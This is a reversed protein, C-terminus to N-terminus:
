AGPDLPDMWLELGPLTVETPGSGKPLTVETTLVEHVPAELRLVCPGPPLDTLTFGGAKFSARAVKQGGKLVTVSFEEMPLHSWGDLVTGSVGAAFGLVLKEEDYPGWPERVARLTRYSDHSVVIAWEPGPLAPFSVMGDADSRVTRVVAGAGSGSTVTVLAAEVPYSWPGLVRAEVREGEPELVLNVDLSSTGEALTVTRSASFYGSCSATVKVEGAVHEARYTGDPGVVIPQALFTSPGEIWVSAGDVPVGKPDLVRGGLTSGTALVLSLAPTEIGPGVAVPQSRLTAHAPHVVVLSVEGPAIGDVIFGGEPGTRGGRGPGGLEGLCGCGPPLEAEPTGAPAAAPSAPLADLPIPPVPGLTVGLEGVPLIGPGEPLLVPVHIDLFGEFLSSSLKSAEDVFVRAGAVPAGSTDTVTGTIRMSRELTVQTEAGTGAGVQVLPLRKRLYGAAQVVVAYKGPALGTVRFRGKVDSACCSLRPTDSRSSVIVCAGEVAGMTSGDLVTGELALGPRVDITVRAEAGEEVIAEANRYAMLEGKGADVSYTGPILGEFAAIGGRNTTTEHVAGTAAAVLRVRAGDVTFGNVEDVRHVVRVLLRGLEVLRIELDPGPVEIRSVTRAAHGAAGAEIRYAGPALGAIAFRGGDDATMHLPPRWPGPATPDGPAPEPVLSLSAHARAGTPSTVRGGLMADERLTIVYPGARGRGRLTTTTSSAHGPAAALIHHIGPDLGPIRFVAGPRITTRARLTAEGGRESHLSLEVIGDPPLGADDVWGWIEIRGAPAGDDARRSASTLALAAWLGACLVPVILM